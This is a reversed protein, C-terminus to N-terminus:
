GLARPQLSALSGFLVGPFGRARRRYLTVSEEYAQRERDIAPDLDLLRRQVERFSTNIRLEPYREAAAFLAGLAQRLAADAAIKQEPAKAQRYAERSKVVGELAVADTGSYGRCTGILKPLEDHRQKLLVEVKSWAKDVAHRARLLERYAVFGWLCLAGLILVLGVAALLLM